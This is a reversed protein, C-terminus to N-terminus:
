LRLRDGLLNRAIRFAAPIAAGPPVSATNSHASEDLGGESATVDLVQGPLLGSPLPASCAKILASSTTTCTVGTLIIGVSQGQVYYKYVYGQAMASTFTTAGVPASQTWQLRKPTQAMAVSSLLIGMVMLGIVRM